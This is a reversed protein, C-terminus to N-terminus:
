QTYLHWYYKRPQSDVDPMRSIKPVNLYPHQPDCSALGNLADAAMQSLVVDIEGPTRAEPLNALDVSRFLTLSRVLFTQLMGLACLHTGFDSHGFRTM